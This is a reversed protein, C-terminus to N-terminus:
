LESLDEPVDGFKKLVVADSFEGVNPDGARKFAVAGANAPDRSMGEARRIAAAESQCEQAEGPATGDDTRIFPLAVYYTVAMPAEEATQVDDTRRKRRLRKRRLAKRVKGRAFGSSVAASLRHIEAELFANIRSAAVADGGCIALVEQVEDEIADAATPSRNTCGTV